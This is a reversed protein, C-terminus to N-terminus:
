KAENQWFRMQNIPNFEKLKNLSRICRGLAYSRVGFTFDLISGTAQAMRCCGNGM